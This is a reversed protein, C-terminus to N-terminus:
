MYLQVAGVTGYQAQTAALETEILLGEADSGAIAWGSVGIFHELAKTVVPSQTLMDSIRMACVLAQRPGTHSMLVGIDTDDLLGVTDGGRVISEVLTRALSYSRELDATDLPEERARLKIRVLSIEHPKHRINSIQEGLKERFESCSLFAASHEDSRTAGTTRALLCADVYPSIIKAVRQAVTSVDLSAQGAACARVVAHLKGRTVIGVDSFVPAITPQWTGNEHLAKQRINIVDPAPVTAGYASATSGVTFVFEDILGRINEKPLPSDSVIHIESEGDTIPLMMWAYIASQNAWGAAAALIELLDGASELKEILGLADADYTRATAAILESNEM